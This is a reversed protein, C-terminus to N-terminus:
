FEVPKRSQWKGRTFDPVQVPRSRNAASQRALPAIISSTVSDYVDPYPARGERLAKVLLRWTLPTKGAASKLLPHRYEDLYKAADEWKHATPSIGDIYVLMEAKGPVAAFVGKTGQYRTFERPAPASGAFHLTVLKGDVTHLLSAEYGAETSRSSMLFDFKDGHNIGAVPLVRNMPADFAASGGCGGRMVGDEIHIVDGLLGQRVLNLLSLYRGGDRELLATELAISSWKGTKEFVETLAWADDPKLAVPPETAAHKGNRNAALCVAAHTDAPTACIVCDLAAEACMREYAKASGGYLQPAARGAATLLKGAQELAPEAMDCLAAIEVDPMAAAASLHYRGRPGLGVFGLRVTKSQM